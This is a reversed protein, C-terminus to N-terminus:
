TYSAEHLSTGHKLLFITYLREDLFVLLLDKGPYGEPQWFEYCKYDQLRLTPDKILKRWSNYSLPIEKM